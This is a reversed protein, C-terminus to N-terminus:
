WSPHIEDIFMKMWLITEEMMMMWIKFGHHIFNM